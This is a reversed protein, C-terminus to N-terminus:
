EDDEEYDTYGNSLYALSRSVPYNILKQALAYVESSEIIDNDLDMAYDKALVKKISKYWNCNGYENQREDPSLHFVEGLTYILAPIVLISNLTDQAETAHRMSKYRSHDTEPLMITIKKKNIDICMHYINPDHNKIIAFISKANSFDSLMKNVDITVEQGVALVCGTEIKFKYGRYDENFSTNVYDFIDEMAVIFSCIKLKGSIHESKIVREYDMQDTIEVKRYTTQACETHYVIKAKGAHILDILEQNDLTAHFMLKIENGILQYRTETSFVCGVYDDSFEALVPYPYLKARIVM